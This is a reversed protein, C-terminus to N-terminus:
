TREAHPLSLSSGRSKASMRGDSTAAARPCCILATSTCASRPRITVAVGPPSRVLRRCRQCESGLLRLAALRDILAIALIAVARGEVVALEAARRELARIEPLAPGAAAHARQVALRLRRHRGVPRSLQALLRIHVQGCKQQALVAVGGAGALEGGVEIDLLLHAQLFLPMGHM